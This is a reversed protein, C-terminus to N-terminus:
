KLKGNLQVWCHTMTLLKKRMSLVFHLSVGGLLCFDCKLMICSIFSAHFNIVLTFSDISVHSNVGIGSQHRNVVQAYFNRVKNMSEQIVSWRHQLCAENRTTHILAHSWMNRINITLSASM